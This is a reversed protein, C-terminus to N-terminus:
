RRLASAARSQSCSAWLCGVMYPRGDPLQGFSFIDVINPHRVANVARAEGIMRQVLVADAAITQLLVKIAVVKGSVPQEGRYLM